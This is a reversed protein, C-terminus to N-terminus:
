MRIIGATLIYVGKRIITIIKSSQQEMDTWRNGEQSCMKTRKMNRYIFIHVIEKTVLSFSGKFM